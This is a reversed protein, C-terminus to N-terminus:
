RGGLMLCFVTGDARPMLFTLMADGQFLPTRPPGNQHNRRFPGSEDRTSLKRWRREWPISAFISHAVYRLQDTTLIGNM